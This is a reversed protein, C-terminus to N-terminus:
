KSDDKADERQLKELMKGMAEQVFNEISIGKLAAAKVLMEYSDDDIDFDITECDEPPLGGSLDIMM